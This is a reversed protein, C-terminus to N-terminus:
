EFWVRWRGKCTTCEYVKTLEFRTAAFKLVQWGMSAMHLYPDQNPRFVFASNYSARDWMTMENWSLQVGPQKCKKCIQSM